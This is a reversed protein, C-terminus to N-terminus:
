GKQYLFIHIFYFPYIFTVSSANNGSDRLLFIHTFLGKVFVPLNLHSTGILSISFLMNARLGSILMSIALINKFKLLNSSKNSICVSFNISSKRCTYIYIYIYMSYLTGRAAHRALLNLLKPYVYGQSFFTLNFM